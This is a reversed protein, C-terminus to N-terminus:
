MELRGHCAKCVCVCKEIEKDILDISRNESVIEAVAKNSQRLRKSKRKSKGM